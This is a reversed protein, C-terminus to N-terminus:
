NATEETKKKSSLIKYLAFGVIITNFYIQYDLYFDSIGRLPGLMVELMADVM